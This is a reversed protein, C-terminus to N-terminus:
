QVLKATFGFGFSLSDKHRNEASPAWTSGDDSFLQVDLAFLSSLLDNRSVECADIIHDCADACTGARSGFENRCCPTGAPKDGCVPTTTRCGSGDDGGGTDFYAYISNGYPQPAKQAQMTLIDAIWPPLTSDFAERSIGSNLRGNLLLDGDLTVQIHAAAMRLVSHGFFPMRLELIAAEALKRPDASALTSSRSTAYFTVNALRPDSDAFVVDTSVGDDNPVLEVIPRFDGSAIAVDVDQQINTSSGGSGQSLAGIINGMRNDLKGDGNLDFAFDSSSVPLTMSDVVYFRPSGGAATPQSGGCAALLTLTAVTRVHDHGLM